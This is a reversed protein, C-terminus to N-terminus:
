MSLFVIQSHSSPLSCVVHHVNISLIEPVYGGRSVGWLASPGDSAFSIAESNSALFSLLAAIAVFVKM